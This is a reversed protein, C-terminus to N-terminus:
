QSKEATIALQAGKVQRLRDMVAVVQGHNVKKDAQVMVLVQQQSGILGQVQTQLTNLTVPQRNLSIKGKSDITVTISESSLQPKATIANPLNVPLGEQKTLFMTSIIFFALIAFIVDIMPLINLQPPLDPEDPLHM